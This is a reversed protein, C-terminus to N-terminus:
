QLASSLKGQFTAKITQLSKKLGRHNTASIMERTWPSNGGMIDVDSLAGSGTDDWIWNMRVENALYNENICWVALSSPKQYGLQCVDSLSGFGPPCIVSWFSGDKSGGSGSDKWIQVYGTPRQFVTDPNEGTVSLVYTAPKAGGYWANIGFHGVIYHRHSSPSPSYCSFDRSSGTGGDDYILM